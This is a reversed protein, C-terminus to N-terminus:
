GLASNKNTYQPSENLFRRFNQGIELMGTVKGHPKTITPVFKFEPFYVFGHDDINISGLAAIKEGNIKQKDERLAKIRKAYLPGLAVKEENLIKLTKATNAM